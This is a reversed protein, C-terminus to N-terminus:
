SITSASSARITGPTNPANFNYYNIGGSTYNAPSRVQQSSQQSNFQLEIRYRRM